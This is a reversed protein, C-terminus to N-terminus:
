RRPSTRGAVRSVRHGRAGRVIAELTAEVSRGAQAALRHHRQDGWQVHRWIGTRDLTRTRRATSGRDDLPHDTAFNRTARGYAQDQGGQWVYGEEQKLGLRLVDRDDSLLFTKQHLQFLTFYATQSIPFRRFRPLVPEEHVM